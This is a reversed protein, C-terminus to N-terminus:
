SPPSIRARVLAIRLMEAAAHERCREHYILQQIMARFRMMHRAARLDRVTM